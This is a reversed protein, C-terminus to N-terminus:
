FKVVLDAQLIQEDVDVSKREVDYYDLGLAVDKMLAYTGSLEHGKIDTAGGLRDSDPFSDPFADADLDAYLYGFSWPGVGLKAGVAFGTDEDSDTRTNVVYEGVVSAKGSAFEGGLELGLEVVGFRDDTNTGASYDPNFADPRDTHEFGYWTAAITGSLGGADLEQGLQVYYLYPDSTDDAFENLAWVGGDIFVDGIPTGLAGKASVGEPNIDGDWVLDTPVWLYDPFKFKGGIVSFGEDHGYQAYAYDLNIAKTSFVDGFTQNTSRPDAGGSALGAGVEVHELPQSVIGLRYRVRGRNRIVQEGEDSSRDDNNDYQYRLRIDGKLETRSAWDLTELRAALGADVPPEGLPRDPGTPTAENLRDRGAADRLRDYQEQTLSGNTRMLEILEDTAEAAFAPGALASAICVLASLRFTRHRVQTSPGRSRTPPLSITHNM